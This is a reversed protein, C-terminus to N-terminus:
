NWSFAANVKSNINWDEDLYHLWEMVVPESYHYLIKLTDEEMGTLSTINIFNQLSCKDKLAKM